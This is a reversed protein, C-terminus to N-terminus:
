EAPPLPCAGSPDLPTVAISTLAESVGGVSNEVRLRVHLPRDGAMRVVLTDADLAGDDLTSESGEFSWTYKLPPSDPAPREYVLTLNPLSQKADLHIATAFADGVCVAMPSANIVASPAPPPPEGCAMVAAVLLIYRQSPM